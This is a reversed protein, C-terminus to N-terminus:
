GNCAQMCACALQASELTILLAATRLLYAAADQTRETCLLSAAADQTGESAISLLFRGVTHWVHKVSSMSSGLQLLLQSM